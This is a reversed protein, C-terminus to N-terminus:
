ISKRMITNLSGFGMKKYLGLAADTNTYVNLMVQQCQGHEKAYSIMEALAKQGLGKGRHEPLIDIYHLYVVHENFDQEFSFWIHGVKQKKESLHFFYYNPTDQGDRLVFRIKDKAIGLTEENKPLGYADAIQDAFLPILHDIYAKHEEPTMKLFKM